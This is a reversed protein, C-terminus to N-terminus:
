PPFDFIKRATRFCGFPHVVNLGLHLDDLREARLDVEPDAGLRILEDCLYGRAEGEVDPVGGVQMRVEALDMEEIQLGLLRNELIVVAFLFPQGRVAKKIAGRYQGGRPM